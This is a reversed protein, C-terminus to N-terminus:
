KGRKLTVVLQGRKETVAFRAGKKFGLKQLWKGRMRILPVSQIRGADDQGGITRDVTFLRDGEANRRPRRPETLFVYNSAM